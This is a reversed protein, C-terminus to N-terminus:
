AQTSAGRALWELSRPVPTPSATHPPGQGRPLERSLYTSAAKTIIIRQFDKLAIVNNRNELHPTLVLAGMRKYEMLTRLTGAQARGARVGRLASPAKCPEPNCLAPQLFAPCAKRPASGRSLPAAAWSSPLSFPRPFSSHQCELFAHSLIM